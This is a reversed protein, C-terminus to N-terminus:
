PRVGTPRTMARFTFATIWVLIVGFSIEVVDPISLGSYNTLYGVQACAPYNRSHVIDYSTAGSVPSYHFVMDVTDAGTVTYLKGTIIGAGDLLVPNSIEASAASDLDPYCYNNYRNM